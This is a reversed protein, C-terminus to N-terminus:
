SLVHQQKATEHCDQLAQLLYQGSNDSCTRARGWWQWSSSHRYQWDLGRDSALGIRQCLTEPAGPGQLAPTSLM